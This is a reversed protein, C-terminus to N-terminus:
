IIGGSNLDHTITVLELDHTAYKKDHEKLKRSEYCVVHNNQMLVGRIGYKCVYTYVVFYNVLNLITPTM